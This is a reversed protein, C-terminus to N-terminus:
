SWIPMQCYDHAPLGPAGHFDDDQPTELHDNQTQLGLLVAVAAVAWNMHGLGYSCCGSSPFLESVFRFVACNM